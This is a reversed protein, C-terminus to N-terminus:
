KMSDALKILEQKSLGGNLLLASVGDREFILMRGEETVWSHTSQGPLGQWIGNVLTAPGSSLAIEEIAENPVSARVSALGGAQQAIAVCVNGYISRGNGDRRSSGAAYILSTQRVEADYRAEQLRCGDPVYAPRMVPFGAQENLQDIASESKRGMVPSFVQAGLSEPVRAAAYALARQIPIRPLVPQITIAAALLAIGTITVVALALFPMRTVRREALAIM